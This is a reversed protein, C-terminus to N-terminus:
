PAGGLSDYFAREFALFGNLTTPDMFPLVQAAWFGAVGNRRDIWYFLNGLGAWGLSGAPRGTPAEADNVMFTLAWSKTQGPFFEADHSYLTAVGPLMPVKMGGLGDRAALAITEPRLVRGNDGAGDNLWMRLFRVYDGASGFLAGGGMLIEPDDVPDWAIAALAGNEDRRHVSARRARMTESLAFGTDRMGLPEFIRAKLIADLREGLIAEAIFGCWDLGSGYEWREGPDFLLPTRMLAKSPGRPGPEGREAALRNYIPNFMEHALGSTHLLLMRTTIDRKPDRLRPAGTEDFGELVKLAGIDADYNKAPADLDLRGEEVLQLIATGTIAKTCSFLAFLTDLTMPQPEGLRRLGAAGAYTEGQRDTTMAVIGPVGRRGEVLAKLILDASERFGAGAM